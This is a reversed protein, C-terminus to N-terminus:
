ALLVVRIYILFTFSTYFQRIFYDRHTFFFFFSLLLFHKVRTSSPLIVIALSWNRGCLQEGGKKGWGQIKEYPKKVSTTEIYIYTRARVNVVGRFLQLFCNKIKKQSKKKQEETSLFNTIRRLKKKM